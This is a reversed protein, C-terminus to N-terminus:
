RVLKSASVALPVVLGFVDSRQGWAAIADRCHGADQRSLLDEDIDQAIVHLVIRAFAEPGLEQATVPFPVTHIERGGAERVLRPLMRGIHPHAQRRLYTQHRAQRVEAFGEPVPDVLLTQDDMDIVAIRGGPRVVRLMETVVKAVEPIHRLVYRAWIFDFSDTRFPLSLASGHVYTVRGQAVGLATTDLEVGFVSLSPNQAAIGATVFGPGCGVDLVRGSEPLGLQRLLQVERRFVVEAQAKLRHVEDEANEFRDIRYAPPEPVPSVRHAADQHGRADQRLRDTEQLAKHTKSAQKWSTM